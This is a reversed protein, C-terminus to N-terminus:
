LESKRENFYTSITVTDQSKVPETKYEGCIRCRYTSGGTSVGCCEWEHDLESKCVKNTLTTGSYDDVPNVKVRLGREPIKNDCKKDWKTCWGCPTKYTCPTKVKSGTKTPKPKVSAPPIYNPNPNPTTAPEIIKPTKCETLAADLAAVEKIAKKIINM